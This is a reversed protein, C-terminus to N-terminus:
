LHNFFLPHRAFIEERSVSFRFEVNSMLNSSIRGRLDDIEAPLFGESSQTTMVLIDPRMRSSVDVEIISIGVGGKADGSMIVHRYKLGDFLVNPELLYHLEQREYRDISRLFERMTSYTPFAPMLYGTSAYIYPINRNGVGQTFAGYIEHYNEHYDDDPVLVGAAERRAGSRAVEHLLRVSTGLNESRRLGIPGLMANLCLIRDEEGMVHWGEPLGDNKYMLERLKSAADVYRDHLSDGKIISSTAKRAIEVLRQADRSSIIPFSNGTSRERAIQLGMRHLAPNLLRRGPSLFPDGPLPTGDFPSFSNALNADPHARRVEELAEIYLDAMLDLVADYMKTGFPVEAPVFPFSNQAADIIRAKLEGKPVGNILEPADRLIRDIGKLIKGLSTAGFRAKGFQIIGPEGVILARDFEGWAIKPVGDRGGRRFLANSALLAYEYLEPLDQMRSLVTKWLDAISLTMQISREDPSVNVEEGRARCMGRAVIYLVLLHRDYPRVRMANMIRRVITRRAGVDGIGVICQSAIHGLKGSAPEYQDSPPFDFQGYKMLRSIMSDAIATMVSDPMTIFTSILYLALLLPREEGEELSPLSSLLQSTLLNVSEADVVNILRAFLESLFRAALVRDPESDHKRRDTTIRNLYFAMVDRAFKRVNAGVEDQNLLQLTYVQLPVSVDSLGTDPDRMRQRHFFLQRLPSDNVSEAEHGYDETDQLSLATEYRSMPRAAPSTSRVVSHAFLSNPVAPPVFLGGVPGIGADRLSTGPWPPSLAFADLGQGVVSEAFFSSSGALTTGFPTPATTATTVFPFTTNVTTNM